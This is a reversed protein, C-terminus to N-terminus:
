RTLEAILLEYATDGALGGSKMDLDIELLRNFIDLLQAMSFRRAQATLKEALFPLVKLEREVEAQRGGEDIIERAQILQRFQRHIM